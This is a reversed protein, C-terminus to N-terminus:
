KQKGKDLGFHRKLLLGVEEISSAIADPQARLKEGYQYDIFITYCGAANGADVDRWRDGVMASAKLDIDYKAALENILGPKPKRCACQDSDDHICMGIDTLLCNSAVLQNIEMVTEYDVKQRAIDPQNTVMFTQINAQNLLHCLDIAGPVFQMDALSNDATPVGDIVSTTVLVGDRDFFVARAKSM